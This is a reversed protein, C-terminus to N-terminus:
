AISEPNPIRKRILAAMRALAAVRAKGDAAAAAYCKMRAARLEDDTAKGDAWERTVRLCDRVRSDNPYRKEYLPLATEACDVTAHVVQGKYGHLRVLLWLQWDSRDCADWAEQLTAYPKAWEVAESCAEHKRLLRSLSTQKTATM